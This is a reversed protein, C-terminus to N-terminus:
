LFEAVVFTSGGIYIMDEARALERARAVAATVTPATEGQLGYEAARRALINEDLAREIGARTFIYHAEKPLLPLVKSLDKDAVFGLVMYLKHFQQRAIQAAIERLGGENHGTDCVTLPAHGVIQWRGLLSTSAAASAMGKQVAERPIQLGGSGNLVDLVTLATLINKRQYDGLLDTCLTFTEGDLLNEITFPQLARPTAPVQGCSDQPLTKGTALTKPSGTMPMMEGNNAQNVIHYTQDAFLIPASCEKARAIIDAGQYCEEPLPCADEGKYLQLYRIALSKGFKEIQNGADNIYFERTVDYGAWDLCAALGDGLAGGRANGMHMPGTPNASVFEVNYRKGAGVDTRGYEPNAVAARVVSTFWDQGLFLNIFGPGAVEFRDFLSGGLQLKATIAEAIQRPAKHFARAGAMAVNSAIDGNKVDAPIEVIFDPLAAEPLAGDAVAAKVADTLLARAQALAAARPNYNKYDM